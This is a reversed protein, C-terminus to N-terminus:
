LGRLNRDFGEVWLVCREDGDPCPSAGGDFTGADQYGVKMGDEWYSGHPSPAMRWKPTGDENMVPLGPEVTAATFATYWFMQQAVNGQAPIPGAPAVVLGGTGDGGAALDYAGFRRDRPVAETEFGEFALRLWGGRHRGGDLLAKARGRQASFEKRGLADPIKEIISLRIMM